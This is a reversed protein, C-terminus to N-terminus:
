NELFKKLNNLKDDWQAAIIELYEQMSKLPQPDLIYLTERGDKIKTVLGIGELVSLHRTVAQRTIKTGQTLNSISHSHSDNLKHVLSLRIPDGLAAFVKAPYEIKIAAASNRRAM